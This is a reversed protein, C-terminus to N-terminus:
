KRGGFAYLVSLSKISHASGAGRSLFVFSATMGSGTLSADIRPNLLTDYAYSADYSATDDFLTASPLDAKIAVDRPQPTTSRGFDYVVSLKLDLPATELGAFVSIRHLNKRMAPDDFPIHPTQFVATIPTGDFTAALNEQRYVYGDYAGHVVLETGDSLQASDACSVLIGRTESWEWGTGNEGERIGGIIGKASAAPTSSFSTFLRYQSKNRVLCSAIFGGSFTAAVDKVKSQIPRSISGLEVDGIRATGSITRLGDQSLYVLDGGVEQLSDRAVCGLDKSVPVLAADASSGAFISGTLKSIHTRGFIYLDGRWPRIAVIPFGVNIQFAGLGPDWKTEDTPTSGTLIASNKQALFILQKHECAAVVNAPAASLVTWTTGNWVAPKNTGDAVIIRPESWSYKCATWSANGAYSTAGNIKTWSSGSGVYVDAGRMALVGDGFVFVGLMAGAGPVPAASYKAYGDIRRYGGNLGVEYNVLQIASGPLKLGQVLADQNLILGGSLEVPKVRLRDKTEAM